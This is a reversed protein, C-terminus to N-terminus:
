GAPGIAWKCNALLGDATGEGRFYVGVLYNAAITLGGVLVSQGNRTGDTTTKVVRVGGGGDPDVAIVMVVPIDAATGNTGVEPSWQIDLEGDGGQSLQPGTDPYHMDGLNITPPAVLDFNSDMANLFISQMSQFGPLQGISRNWDVKYIDPGLFRVIDICQGFKGRQAAQAPTNPNSPSVKERVTVLKGQRGRAAGFTVGGVSGAVRGTIGGVVIAM